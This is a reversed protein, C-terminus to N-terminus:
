VMKRLEFPVHTKEEIWRDILEKSFRLRNGIKTFPIRKRFVMDYIASKKVKLYAALDDINLLCNEMVEVLGRM